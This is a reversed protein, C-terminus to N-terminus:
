KDDISISIIKEGLKNFVNFALTEDEAQNSDTLIKENWKFSEVEPIGMGIFDDHIIVSPRNQSSVLKKLQVVIAELESLANFKLISLASQKKYEKMPIAVPLLIVKYTGYYRQSNEIFHELKIATGKRFQSSLRLCYVIIGNEIEHVVNAIQQYGSASDVVIASFKRNACLRMIDLFKERATGSVVNDLVTQKTGIFFLSGQKLGFQSSIDVMGSAPLLSEISILIEDAKNLIGIKNILKIINGDDQLFKQLEIVISKRINLTLILAAIKEPLKKEILLQAIKKLAQERETLERENINQDANIGYFDNNFFIETKTYNNLKIEEGGGRMLLNTPVWSSNEFKDYMKLIHTLGASDLDMDMILIPHKRSANFKAALVPIMNACCVTRGAGGKFSYFSIIQM